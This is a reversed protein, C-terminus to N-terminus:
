SCATPDSGTPLRHIGRRRAGFATRMSKIEGQMPSLEKLMAHMDALHEQLLHRVDAPLVEEPEIRLTTTM